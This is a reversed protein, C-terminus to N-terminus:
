FGGLPGLDCLGYAPDDCLVQKSDIAAAYTHAPKIKQVLDNAGRMDPTGPEAPPRHAYWYFPRLGYRASVIFEGFTVTTVGATSSAEGFVGHGVWDLDREDITIDPVYDTFGSQSSTTSRSLTFASENFGLLGSDEDPTRMRLWYPGAGAAELAVFVSPVDAEVMQYGIQVTGAVNKLGYWLANNTRRNVALIGVGANLPLTWGSIKATAFTFGRGGTDVAMRVHASLRKAAWRVDTAAPVSLQLGGVVLTWTAGDGVDVLWRQTDLTQWSEGQANQFEMLEIDGADQDFPGSLAEQIAPISYGEERAFYAVVRTRRTDLSDRPRPALGALKEWRPILSAPAADPLWLARLEHIAAAALGLSQGVVKMRRGIKNSPDRYWPAGIPILAALTEVGGPQHDYLRRWTERIEQHSQEYDYVALEDLTGNLYNEWVGANKRAGVSTHGTTGGSIDGDTSIVEHVLRDDVYYRLVVRGTSEWRRTATLRFEKGDGLHRFTGPEQLKIVGASDSWFWRVYLFGEVEEEVQLGFSYRESTTGDNLGRAIITHPGFATAVTMSLLVDITVDRQLLTDGDPLDAAVLANSSARAFQRGDGQWTRVSLPATTVPMLDDLNGEVDSPAVGDPETLHLLITAPGFLGHNGPIPDWLEIPPLPLIDELVLFTLPDFSTSPFAM